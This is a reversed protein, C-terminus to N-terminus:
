APSATVSANPSRKPADGPVQKQMRLSNLLVCLSSLSMAIAAIVPQVWGMVALPVVLANYGVAWFLNQRMLKRARQALLLTAPVKEISETLYVAAAAGTASAANGVAIGLRAGALALGDNLGDGVFVANTQKELNEMFSHKQEPSYGSLVHKSPIGLREALELCANRTDGSLLYIAYGQRTLQGITPAAEPRLTEQFGIKGAYRGNCAIHVNMGTDETTPVEVGQERLWDAQGALATDGGNIWRTGAGAISERTGDSIAASSSANEARLGRAVPHHSECLINQALELLTNKTWQEAPAISDVSPEGTTLTGTKDFVIAGVEAAAELAAPDRLVIGRDVMHAHGMTIVLPIALSLACPCSIIMVALGRAAAEPAPLGQVLALAVALVAAILIVPLLIRAIRDTLRQLTTKRSLLASISRSLRDIRRQGIDATVSLELEGEVLQCGALMEAGPGLAQPLHEGTLMSLDAQGHGQIIQGDLALLEGAKLIIREGTEVDNAPRTEYHGSSTKLTVQEPVDQLYRRIIESARRRVSTDLLRAILQFTILMVAADFYVHHSGAALQWASIICAAFVAIFILSDLGPAGAILTRWGVRYFHSGSYLVVPVAFLGSALALPWLVEPEVAGFPALYILLAPMMSWMGFVVAVALRRQLHKRVSEAQLKSREADVSGHLRYGLRAVAKQLGALPPKENDWCILAVDAAFNVAADSVGPQKKLLAEVAIACSGCRMGEIMLIDQQEPKQHLSEQATNANSDPM